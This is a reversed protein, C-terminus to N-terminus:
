SCGDRCLDQLNDHFLGGLGEEVNDTTIHEYSNKINWSMGVTIDLDMKAYTDVLTVKPISVDPVAERFGKTLEIRSHESGDTGDFNKEVRINMTKNLHWGTAEAFTSLTDFIDGVGPLSTPDLGPIASTFDPINSPLIGTPIIDLGPLENTSDTSRKKVLEHIGRKIRPTVYYKQESDRKKLQRLPGTLVQVRKATDAEYPGFRRDAADIDVSLATDNFFLRDARYVSRVGEEEHCSDDEVVFLLGKRWAQRAMMYSDQHRFDLNLTTRNPTSQAVCLQRDDLLLSHTQLQELNVYISKQHVYNYSQIKGDRFQYDLVIEDKPWFIEHHNERRGIHHHAIRVLPTVVSDVEDWNEFLPENHAFIPGEPDDDFNPPPGTTRSQALPLLSLLYAILAQFHFWM